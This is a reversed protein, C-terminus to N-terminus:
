IPVKPAVYDDSSDTAWMAMTEPTVASTASLTVAPSVAPTAARTGQGYLFTGAVATGVTLLLGTGLLIRTNV